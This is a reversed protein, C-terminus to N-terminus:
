GKGRSQPRLSVPQEYREPLPGNKFLYRFEQVVRRHWPALVRMDGYWRRDKFRHETM